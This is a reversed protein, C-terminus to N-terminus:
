PLVQVLDQAGPGAQARVAEPSLELLYSRLSQVWPWYAPAGGVEWCRGILVRARRM